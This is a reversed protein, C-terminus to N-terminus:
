CHNNDIYYLAKKLLAENPDGLQHAFDNDEVACDPPLGNFYNSFGVANEVVFNILFYVYSGNTRGAMGVPKGHTKTGVTVVNEHLYPEMANIVLESASASNSTTLFLLKNLSLSNPDNSDFYLTENQNSNQANWALTFQAQGNFNHGIKDLFISATNVTGGPNYRLDVVLKDINQSKFYTFATELEDTANDTFEDFRLYGVRQGENSQVVKYAIVKYNYKQATIALTLPAGGRELGFTTPQNLNSSAQSLLDNTVPQGNISTIKDGRLLGAAQAPSGILVTYVTFNDLFGFGFGATSQSVMNDYQQRTLAFSWRDLTAYKLDDIMPQPETYSAYDFPQPVQSNWYYENLFLNYLYSKEREDFTGTGGGPIGGLPDGIPLVPKSSGGCASLLFALLVSSLLINLKRLM